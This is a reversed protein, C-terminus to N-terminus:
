MGNLVYLAAALLAAGLLAAGGHCLLRIRLKKM